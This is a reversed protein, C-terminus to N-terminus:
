ETTIHGIWSQTKIPYLDSAMESLGSPHRGLASIYNVRVLNLRIAGRREHPAL